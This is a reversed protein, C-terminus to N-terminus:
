TKRELPTERIRGGRNQWRAIAEGLRMDDRMKDRLLASHTLVALLFSGFMYVFTPLAGAILLADALWTLALFLGFLPLMMSILGLGRKWRERDLVAFAQADFEEARELTHLAAIVDAPMPTYPLLQGM